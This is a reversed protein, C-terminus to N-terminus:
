FLFHNVLFAILTTVIATIASIIITRIDGKINHWLKIHWAKFYFLGKATVRYFNITYYSGNLGSHDRPVEDLYGLAVLNEVSRKDRKAIGNILTAPSLLGDKSDIAKKLIERESKNM